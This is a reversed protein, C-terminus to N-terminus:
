RSNRRFHAAGLGALATIMLTMSAPESVDTPPALSYVFATTPYGSRGGDTTYGNRTAFSNGIDGMTPDPSALNFSVGGEDLYFSTDSVLNDNGVFGGPGVLGTIAIGDLIGTFTRLSTPRSIPAATSFM